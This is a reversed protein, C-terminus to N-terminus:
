LTQLSSIFSHRYKTHDFSMELSQILVTEHNNIFSVTSFAKAYYRMCLMNTIIALSARQGSARM